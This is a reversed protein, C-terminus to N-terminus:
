IRRRATSVHFCSLPTEQFGLFVPEPQLEIHFLDLVHQHICRTLDLIAGATAGGRNVIALAHKGSIGVSGRSYGKFFGAKEILWAAPVKVNGDPMSFHPVAGSAELLGRSHLSQELKRFSELSLLPNKFFSGVSKSDPDSDSVVMGKARRIQLVAERVLSVPYPSSNEAFLRQIDPYTTASVGEPHLTFTVSLVIYESEGSTNFVSSRYAFRCDRKNLKVIERTGHHWASVRSISDGAEQGYAGANQVAIGGVTGPIGSLCEVGSLNRTVCYHVFEDWEVGAGVTVTGRDGIEDSKIGPIEIKLLLGSFGDDSVLINSGGGLIFVPCGRVKAFELAEAVHVENVARALFRARGGVGLTTFPALPVKEEIKLTSAPTRM